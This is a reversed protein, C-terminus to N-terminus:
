LRPARDLADRLLGLAHEATGHVTCGAALRHGGGGLERAALSVDIKGMARLSVQWEGPLGEKLVVAVEADRTARVVDIVSEVEESRVTSATEATVVAHVLGLGQASDPELRAGALVTALMPLYAFPHSDMIERTLAMPQVGADLLRAAMAHTVPRARRFGGTDTVLGAYLCRATPEDLEDGLADILQLVLVATAEATEDVVHHTGYFQNSAHHDVVLVQGGTEKVKAVRGGLSGLRGLTPTDLGILLPETEPLEDPRVLLGDADLGRLTEPPVWEGGGTGFSVRVTAGRKSLVRGLALASGLADADPRVHGLLTVDTATSLLAAAQRIDHELSATM